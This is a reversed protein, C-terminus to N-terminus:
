FIICYLVFYRITKFSQNIFIYLCSLKKYLVNGKNVSKQVIRILREKLWLSYSADSEHNSIKEDAEVEFELM